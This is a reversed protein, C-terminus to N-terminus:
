ERADLEMGFLPRSHELGTEGVTRLELPATGDM